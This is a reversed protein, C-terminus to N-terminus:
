VSGEEADLLGDGVLVLRELQPGESNCKVELSSVCKRIFSIRVKFIEYVVCLTFRLHHFHVALDQEETGFVHKSVQFRLLRCYKLELLFPVLFELEM